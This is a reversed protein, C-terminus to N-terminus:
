PYSSAMPAFVDERGRFLSRFLAVKEDPSLTYMPSSKDPEAHAEDDPQVSAVPPQLVEALQQELRTNEETLRAVQMRLRENERLADSLSIPPTM